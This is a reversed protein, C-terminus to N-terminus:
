KSPAIEVYGLGRSGKFMVLIVSEQIKTPNIVLSRICRHRVLAELLSAIEQWVFGTWMVYDICHISM